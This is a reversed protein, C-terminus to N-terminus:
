ADIRTRTRRLILGGAGIAGLGVASYLTIEAGTLPLGGEAEDTSGSVNGDRGENADEVAGGSPYPDQQAMAPSALWLLALTAVAVALIEITRMAVGKPSARRRGSTSRRPHHDVRKAGFAGATMTGIGKSGKRL